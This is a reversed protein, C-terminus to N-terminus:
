IILLNGLPASFAQFAPCAPSIRVLAGLQLRILTVVCRVAYLYEALNGLTCLGGSQSCAIITGLIGKNM